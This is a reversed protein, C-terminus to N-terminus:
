RINANAEILLSRCGTGCSDCISAVFTIRSVLQSCTRSIADFVYGTQTRYSRPTNSTVAHSHLRRLHSGPPARSGGNSQDTGYLLGFLPPGAGEALTRGAGPRGASPLHGSSGLLLPSRHALPPSEAERETAVRVYGAQGHCNNVVLHPSSQRDVPLRCAHAIERSASDLRRSAHSLSLPPKASRPSEVGNNRQTCAKANM